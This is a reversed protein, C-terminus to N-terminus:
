APESPRAAKSQSIYQYVPWEKALASVTDLLAPAFSELREVSLRVAPGAVSVTGAAETVGDPIIPAAIASVGLDMEEQVLTYGRRRSVELDTLLDELSTVTRPTMQELPGAGLLSDLRAASLTTLFAKGTATAHLRVEAGSAPDVILSSNSGQARGVWMLHDDVVVALRVLEQTARALDDLHRQAWRQVGSGELQRLGLAGLRYTSRYRDSTEDQEVYGLEALLALLRHTVGRNVGMAEALASVRLGEAAPALIELIRMAQRVSVSM